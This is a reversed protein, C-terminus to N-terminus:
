RLAAKLRAAEDKAVMLTPWIRGTGTSNPPHVEWGHRNHNKVIAWGDFDEYRGRGAKQWNLDNRHYHNAAVTPHM